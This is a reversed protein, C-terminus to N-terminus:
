WPSFTKGQACFSQYCKTIDLSKKIAFGQKGYYLIHPAHLHVFSFRIKIKKLWGNGNRDSEPPITSYFM